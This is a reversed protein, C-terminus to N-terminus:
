NGVVTARRVKYGDMFLTKVYELLEIENSNSSYRAVYTSPPFYSM